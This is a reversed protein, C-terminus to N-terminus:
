NFYCIIFLLTGSGKTRVAIAQSPDGKGVNNYAIVYFQYQTGCLLGSFTSSTQMSDVQREEWEGFPSKAYIFYGTIEPTDSSSSKAGNSSSAASLMNDSTEISWSLEVTDYDVNVSNLVPARPPDNILTEGIVEESQPGPGVRNFAQVIVVYKTARRLDTIKVEKAAVSGPGSSIKEASNMGGAGEGTVKKFMFHEDVDLAKYGVYYGLLQGNQHEARPAQFTVQLTRASLPYVHINLPPGSPAEEKTVLKLISTFPGLGLKNEAQVRFEYATMPKLGRLSFSNESGSISERFTTGPAAGLDLHKSGSGSVSSSGSSSSSIAGPNPSSIIPSVDSWSSEGTGTMAQRYEIHFALLPSNGSYPASWGIVASRSESELIHMSEPRSPPEQVILQFNYEDKGFANATLCTFLSSDRRDVSVIRVLLSYGDERPKRVLRYRTDTRLTQEIIGGSSSAVATSSSGTNGPSGDIDLQMRDKALTISIPPEGFSDCLFEISDGKQM